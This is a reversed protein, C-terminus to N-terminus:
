DNDTAASSPLDLDLVSIFDSKLPDTIAKIAPHLARVSALDASLATALDDEEIADVAALAATIASGMEDALASQGAAVLWDDFGLGDNGPAGGLFLLQFGVLNERIAQKSFGAYRSELSAPCTQTACMSLGAPEAVKMDKTTADLYFMADSVANLAAHDNAYLGGPQTLEAVFNGSSPEWADRLQLAAANVLKAATLAYDARRQGLQGVIATWSGSMNIANQPPCSNSASTYFVLYDMADLGRVNVLQNAFSGADAYSEDVLKGDIACANSLPWSYIADRLDQGGATTDAAGAPGLQMLEARQWASLATRWAAELAQKEASGGSAAHATAAQELTAAAAAFDRYAPVIVGEGLSVLLARKDFGPVTTGSSTAGDSSSSTPGHSKSSSQVCAYSAGTLAALGGLAM